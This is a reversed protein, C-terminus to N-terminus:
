LIDVLKDVLKELYLKDLEDFRAEIPSDIDLVGFLTNEKTSIPIVLESKSASDCAIHGPFLDVNPVVLTEKNFAAVGCVGQNLPITTCAPLGQFPGLFLKQGDFLYFGVWNINDLYYNIYACLNSLTTIPEDNKNLFHDLGNLMTIYNKEKNSYLTTKTFM